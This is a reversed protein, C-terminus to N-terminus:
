NPPVMKLGNYKIPQMWCDLKQSASHPHSLKIGRRLCNTCVRACSRQQQVQPRCNINLSAAALITKFVLIVVILKVIGVPFNLKHLKIKQKVVTSILLYIDVSIQKVIM